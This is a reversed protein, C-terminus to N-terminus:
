RYFLLMASETMERSASWGVHTGYGNADFWTFDGCQIGGGEPFYGGGGVCYHETNCGTPRVGSCIAMAAQENNFVRFTIFGPVFEGRPNPGYLLKTSEENGFDYVIPVAPGRNTNCVGAKYRVPYRKFLHYLNGGQLTLFRSDTHYRLISGFTWYEMPANNQVHWVSVDRAIIDYYGPNKYDDSTAAEASGFTALNSWTGDGEPLNPNNGQQSSWRDGVTCKGYMNNEHVSAVLTWGGGATTMDCFTQYQVGIGTTLYYLGDEYVGYKDRIEKCSRAVYQKRELLKKADRSSITNNANRSLDEANQFSYPAGVSKSDCQLPELLLTMMLIAWHLM